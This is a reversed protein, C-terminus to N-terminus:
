RAQVPKGSWSGHGHNDIFGPVVSQDRLDIKQTDPGALPLIYNDTGVALFKGDRIAVASAITNSDDATIIQGNYFILDPYSVLEPRVSQASSVGSFIAASLLLCLLSVTKHSM